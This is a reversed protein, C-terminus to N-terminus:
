RPTYQQSTREIRYRYSNMTGWVFGVFYGLGLPRKGRLLNSAVRRGSGTLFSLYVRVGQADGLRVHKFFAAGTGFGYGRILKSADAPNSRVGLHDVVVESAHVMKFGDRLTRFLFDPEGGSRLPAGAGLIPDFKGIRALASRRVALNATIGWNGFPPFRRKWERVQPDFNETFGQERIEEPVRVRGCVVAVEPDCAFIHTLREVWDSTVRCDDDTFAVIESSSSEIGINRASTVGRTSTRIYKIRPDTSAAVVEETAAGDSQDVVILESFGPNAL